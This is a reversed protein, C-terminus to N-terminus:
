DMADSADPADPADPPPPSRHPPRSAAITEGYDPFSPPAPDIAPEEGAQRARLIEADLGAEVERWWLRPPDIPRHDEPPDHDAAHFSEEGGREPHCERCWPNECVRLHMAKLRSLTWVRMIEPELQYRYEAVLARWARRYAAEEIEKVRAEVEERARVSPNSGTRGYRAPDSAQLLLRLMSDSYRRKRYVEEGNRIVAEEVGDVARAFAVAELSTAARKLAQDWAEGFAPDIKRLRYASVNSMRVARCADRVNGTRGLTELFTRQREGTWGDHRVRHNPERLRGYVAPRGGDEAEAEDM